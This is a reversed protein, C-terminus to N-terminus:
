RTSRRTVVVMLASIFMWFAAPIPVVTTMSNLLFRDGGNELSPGILIANGWVEEGGAAASLDVSAVTTDRGNNISFRRLNLGGSALPDVLEDYNLGLVDDSSNIWGAFYTVDRGRPRNRNGVDPAVAFESLEMTESFLLLVWDNGGANDIARTNERNICRNLNGESPNCVGLGDSMQHGISVELSGNDTDSWATVQVNQTLTSDSYTWSHGSADSTGGSTFDFTYTVPAAQAVAAALILVGAVLTRKCLRALANTKRQTSM